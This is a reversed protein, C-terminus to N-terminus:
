VAVRRERRYEVLESDILDILEAPDVAANRAHVQALTELMMERAVAQEVFRSLDGRRRGRESLLARLDADTERSVNLSWRALEAM